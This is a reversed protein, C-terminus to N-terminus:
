QGQIALALEQSSFPAQLERHIEGRLMVIVRHCISFDDDDTAAILVAKGSEASKKITEYISRKAAVDVGATPNMLVIAKPETSMARALVVKQQNGGSLEEVPQEPGDAKIAWDSSLRGYTQNRKRTSVTGLWGRIQRLIPLTANESVSLAPVYGGDHRDEPIFGVGNAICHPVDLRRLQRGAVEVIGSDLRQLGCLAQAVQMHGAGELGALGVCEGARVRLDVNSVNPAIALGSAALVAPATPSFASPTAAAEAAKTDGVMAGVLDRVALGALERDLVVRGDRLVVTHDCVDFAEELHHSVYLVSVNRQRAEKIRRFLRQSGSYDLGATPEDLLLVSPHRSLARCIEVIKREVPPLNEVLEDAIDAADWEALIEAGRRQVRAWDVLGAQTPFNNLLINEAATLGPVLTSRQYVCEIRSKKDELVFEVAGATPALLGTIIGVLTSKGAGNRGVLALSSGRKVTLSVNSLAVNAGFVKSVDKVRVADPRQDAM